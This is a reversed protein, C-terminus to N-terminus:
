TGAYGAAQPQLKFRFTETTSADELSIGLISSGSAITANKMSSILNPWTSDSLIGIPDGVGISGSATGKFEGDKHTALLTCGDSAIKEVAAIGIVPVGCATQGDWPAIVINSGSIALITGKEIGTGDAVIHSTPISYQKLLVAENAM